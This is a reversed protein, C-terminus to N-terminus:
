SGARESLKLTWEVIRKLTKGLTEDFAMIVSELDAASATQVREVTTAGIIIRQPMTVLKANLRM